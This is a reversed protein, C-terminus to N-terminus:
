SSFEVSLCSAQAREVREEAEDQRLLKAGAEGEAQSRGQTEPHSIRREARLPVNGGRLLGGPNSARM